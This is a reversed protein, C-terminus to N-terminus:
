SQRLGRILQLAQEIRRWTEADEANGQAESRSAQQAAEAIAKAGHTEFLQRALEQVEREPVRM